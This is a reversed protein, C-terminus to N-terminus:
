EKILENYFSIYKEKMKETNYINIVDDYAHKVLDEPFNKMAEKIRVAYEEANECIYGNIGDKIVSRNGVVNSVICLKRIFMEEILSMAIAEGLSCLLFVDAGKSMGLAEKRAKWGTVEINPATLENRLDGDGIWIFKAEPVLLAIENFLRPQKQHCIRGLTFVTFKENRIPQIDNLSKDLDVLNVGTEIYSTKTSFQKAEEDESECCTLTMCNKRGLIYELSKYFKGKLTDKGVMLYNYGHPTYIVKNSKGSFALRGIGGAISSHLHIIDPKVESEIKRLEKITKMNAILNSLKGFNKIEILKIREDFFDKFNEPTQVRTAYAVYVEFEECMDNSLQSVYTFVGGGLSEVVMLVRKRKKM